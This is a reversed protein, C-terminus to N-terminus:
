DNGINVGCANFPLRLYGAGSFQYNLEIWFDKTTDYVEIISSPTFIDIKGGIKIIFNDRYGV